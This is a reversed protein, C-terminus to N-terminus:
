ALVAAKDRSTFIVTVRSLDTASGFEECRM